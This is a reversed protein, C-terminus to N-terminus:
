KEKNNQKRIVSQKETEKEADSESSSYRSFTEQSMFFTKHLNEPKFKQNASAILTLESLILFLLSARASKRQFKEIM